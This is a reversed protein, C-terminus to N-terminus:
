FLMRKIWLNNIVRLGNSVRNSLNEPILEEENLM